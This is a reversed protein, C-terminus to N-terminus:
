AHRERWLRAWRVMGSEEGGEREVDALILDASIRNPEQAKRAQEQPGSEKNKIVRRRIAQKAFLNPQKM